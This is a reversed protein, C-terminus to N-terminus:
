DKFCNKIARQITAKDELTVVDIVKKCKEQILLTHKELLKSIATVMFEIDEVTFSATVTAEIKKVTKQVQAETSIKESM